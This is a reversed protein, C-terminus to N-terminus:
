QPVTCSSNYVTLSSFNNVPIYGANYGGLGHVWYLACDLNTPALAAKGLCNASGHFLGMDPFPESTPPHARLAGKFDLPCGFAANSFVIQTWVDEAWGHRGNLLWALRHCLPLYRKVM